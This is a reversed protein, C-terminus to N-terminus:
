NEYKKTLFLINLLIYKYLKKIFNLFFFITFLSTELAFFIITKILM